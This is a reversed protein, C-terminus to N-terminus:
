EERFPIEKICMTAHGFQTQFLLHSLFTSASALVIKHSNIKFDQGVITVDSSSHEPYNDSSSPWLLTCQEKMFDFLMCQESKSTMSNFM